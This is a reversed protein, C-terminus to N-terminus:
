LQLKMPNDGSRASYYVLRTREDVHEISSVEFPHDTLRARLQGSLDYLYFNKWGTRESAWIFRNGDALFRLMPSNAVWSAPWEERVIVRCKGSRPDAACLEMINQRRNARHFLLEKGDSSWSVGYVYHGLVANEFSKGDRVDVQVTSKMNLDYI